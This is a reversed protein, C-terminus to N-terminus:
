RRFRIEVDEGKQSLNFIGKNVLSYNNESSVETMRSYLDKKDNPNCDVHFFCFLNKDNSDDFQILFAMHEPFVLDDYAYTIDLGTAEKVIERVAELNRFKM